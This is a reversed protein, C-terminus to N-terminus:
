SSAVSQSACMFHQIDHKLVAISPHRDSPNASLARLAIRCLVAPLLHEPRADRPACVSGGKALALDASASGGDHPAMRTLIAYLIGGVGYVDTRADCDRLRGWAQEPAMYAPMAPMDGSGAQMMHVQGQGGVMVHGPELNAYILDCRHALSAADCVRLVIRLLWELETARLARGQLRALLADLTEDPRELDRFQMASQM